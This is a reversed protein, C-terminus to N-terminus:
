VHLKAASLLVGDGDAYLYMGPECTIGDINVSVEREGLGRKISKRPCTTIAMVGLGLKSIIASDRICGWVVIGSWGNDVAKVALQDGLLACRLSAAGDVVLVKGDGPESVAERVRSNDEHCKITSVLGSFCSRGGYSHLKGTAVIVVKDQHQDCLDATAFEPTLETMIGVKCNIFSLVGIPLSM